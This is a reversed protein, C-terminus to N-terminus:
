ETNLSDKAIKCWFTSFINIWINFSSFSREGKWHNKVMQHPLLPPSLKKLIQHASIPKEVWSIIYIFPWCLKEKFPQINFIKPKAHYMHDRNFTKNKLCLWIPVERTTWRNLIQRATCIHTKDRTPSSLDWRPAVLGVCQLSGTHQLQLFWM